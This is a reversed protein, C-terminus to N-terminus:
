KIEHPVNSFINKPIGYDPNFLFKRDTLSLLFAILDVRENPTLVIPQSLKKSLTKGKKIDSTYHNVIESLKKFRGDHMYPYTFEINRLTPVKFKLSDEPQHTVKMRGIDKLGSDEPLGNNEFQQNTFLPEAHCASCNKKFLSYGNKEQETFVSQKRMVSDYKSNESKVSLMFQALAKLLNEKSVNSDNFAKYFLSRYVASRQTKKVINLIDENMEDPNSIPTLAQLDLHDIAGDWMFKEQWALNMLAPANRNGIKNNIGHSLAHDIHAFATFPSHCATCSITSDSSLIPDYFLIRGLFIKNSTLPDKKFNHVPKPWGSPVNFIVADETRFSVIMLLLLFGLLFSRRM